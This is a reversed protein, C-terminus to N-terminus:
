GGKKNAQEHHYEELCQPCREVFDVFDTLPGLIEGPLAHEM